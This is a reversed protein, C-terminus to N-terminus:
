QKPIKRLEGFDYYNEFQSCRVLQNDIDFTIWSHGTNLYEKAYMIMKLIRKDIPLYDKKSIIRIIKLGRSRLYMDRRMEKIYFDNISITKNRTSIKHGSGDYEINIKNQPLYIDLLLNSFPYNLEGNLLKCMYRQQKSSVGTKNKYLSIKAKEQISNNNFPIECGYRNMNTIKIKNLVEECEFPHNCNFKELCTNKKKEKVTINQAPNEVGYKNLYNNKYKNKFEIIQMPNKFGYKNFNTNEKKDIVSKLKAVNDVGYVILNSEKYKQYTCSKCCDKYIISKKNLNIYEYYPKNIITRIGKELCYDCLIKVKVHSGEMLDLVSVEIKDKIKSFNYGKNIFWKKNRNNWETKVIQPLILM